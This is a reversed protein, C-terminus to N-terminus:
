KPSGCSPMSLVSGSSNASRYQDHTLSIVESPEELIRIKKPHGRFILASRQLRSPAFRDITIRLEALQVSWSSLLEEGPHVLLMVRLRSSEFLFRGPSIECGPRCYSLLKSTRKPRRNCHQTTRTEAARKSSSSLAAARHHGCADRREDTLHRLFHRCGRQLDGLLAVGRLLRNGPQGVHGLLLADLARLM